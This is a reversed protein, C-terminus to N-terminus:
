PAIAPAPPLCAAMTPPLPPFTNPVLVRNAAAWSGTWSSRASRRMTPRASAWSPARPFPSRTPAARSGASPSAASTGPAPSCCAAPSAAIACAVRNRLRSSPAVLNTVGAYQTSTGVQVADPATVQYHISGRLYGRLTLVKDQHYKKRRAYRPQLPAWPTGDPATQTKFREQTSRQLYEGLRPMLDATGPEGLRALTALAQADDVTVTTHAAAM